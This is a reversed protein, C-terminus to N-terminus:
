SAVEVPEHKEDLAEYASVQLGDITGQVTYHITGDSMKRRAGDQGLLALGLIDVIEIREPDANTVWPQVDLSLWLNLDPGDVALADFSEALQRLASAIQTPSM